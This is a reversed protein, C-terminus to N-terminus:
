RGSPARAVRFGLGISDLTPPLSCRFASRCLAAADSSWSGGRFVRESGEPPGPPDDTPSDRYYDAGYWDECWEWVNGHVDYLGWANPKNQGVPHTTKRLNDNFWAYEWLGAESDGFCYRTTTGARCAYEWEAETPLRYGSGGSSSVDEGHIKYYQPLRENESLKNCFRVANFWSVGEVPNRGGKYRSPNRGMVREYEQQTVEYRGLYFPRTIRVRRQPKADDAVSDSASSGMLFEGKPILVLRM